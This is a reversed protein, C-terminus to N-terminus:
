TQENREGNQRRRRVTSTPTSTRSGRSSGAPAQRSTEAPTFRSPPLTHNMRHQATSSVNLREMGSPAVKQPPRSASQSSAAPAGSELMKSSSVGSLSRVSQLALNNGASSSHPAKRRHSQINSM